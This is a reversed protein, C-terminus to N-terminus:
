KDGGKLKKKINDVKEDEEFEKKLIEKEEQIQKQKKKNIKDWIDEDNLIEKTVNRPLHSETRVPANGMVKKIKIDKMYKRYVIFGVVALISIGAIYYQIAIPQTNDKLVVSGMLRTVNGNLEDHTVYASYEDSLDNIKEDFMDELQIKYTEIERDREDLSQSINVIEAMNNLAESVSIKEEFWITYNDMKRDVTDSVDETINDYASFRSDIEGKEYTRNCMNDFIGYFTNKEGDTMNYGGAIRTLVAVESTTLCSASVMGSVLLLLVLVSFLYKM